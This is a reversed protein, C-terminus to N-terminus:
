EKHKTCFNSEGKFEIWLVVVVLYLKNKRRLFFFTYNIKKSYCLILKLNYQCAIMYRFVIQFIAGVGMLTFKFFQSCSRLVMSVFLFLFNFFFFFFFHKFFFVKNGVVFLHKGIISNEM